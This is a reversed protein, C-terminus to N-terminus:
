ALIKCFVARDRMVELMTTQVQVFGPECERQNSSQNLSLTQPKPIGADQVEREDNIRKV